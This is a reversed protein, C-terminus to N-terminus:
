FLLLLQMLYTFSVSDSVQNRISLQHKFHLLIDTTDIHIFFICYKNALMDYQFYNNLLDQYIIKYPTLIVQFVFIGLICIAWKFSDPTYGYSKYIIHVHTKNAIDIEINKCVNHFKCYKHTDLYKYNNIHLITICESSAM